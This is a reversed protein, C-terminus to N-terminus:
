SLYSFLIRKELLVISFEGHCLSFFLLISKEEGSFVPSYEKVNSMVSVYPAEESLGRVVDELTVHMDGANALVFLDRLIELASSGRHV